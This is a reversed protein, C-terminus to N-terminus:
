SGGDDGMNAASGSFVVRGREPLRIFANRWIDILAEARPEIWGSLPPVVSAVVGEPLV